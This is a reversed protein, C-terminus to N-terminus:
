RHLNEASDKVVPGLLVGRDVLSSDISCSQM